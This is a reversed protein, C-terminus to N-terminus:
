GANMAAVRDINAQIDAISYQPAAKQLEEATYAGSFLNKDLLAQSKEVSGTSIHQQADASDLQDLITATIVSSEAVRVVVTETDGRAVWTNGRQAENLWVEKKGSGDVTVAIGLNNLYPTDVIPNQGPALYTVAPSSTGVVGGGVVAPGVIVPFVTPVPPVVPPTTGGGGGPPPVVSPWRVIPPPVPPPVVICPRLPGIKVIDERNVTVTNTTSNFVEPLNETEVWNDFSPMLTLMGEWNLVLYPNLNLIRTSKKQSILPKIIYPLSMFNGTKSCNSFDSTMTFDVIHSEKGARIQQGDYTVCFYKSMIDAIINPNKFNDVLFGTKYRSLGTVPDTVDMSVLDSELANLTSYYELNGVRNSLVNIDMMTFRRNAPVTKLIEAISNTYAPINLTQLLIEGTPVNPAVPIRKPTGSIAVIKGSKNITIIDIRPVFYKVSASIRTSPMLMDGSDSIIKRFDLVNKLSVPSNGNLYDPIMALYNLGLGSNKYSDVSFYDGGSSHEFYSYRVELNGAPIEGTISISANTYTYDRQGSNLRCRSTIDVGTASVVYVLDYADSKTLTINSSALIFDTKTVLSKTREQVGANIVNVFVDISSSIPGNVVSLTTGSTNLSFKSFEVIGVNSSAVLNSQELDDIHGRTVSISGDGSSNTLITLKKWTTYGIDVTDIDTRIESINDVPIPFIATNNPSVTVITKIDTVTSTSNSTRGTLTSGVPPMNATSTYRYAYLNGGAVDHNWVKASYAWSDVLESDSFKGKSEPIYLKQLVTMSGTLHKIHGVSRNIKNSGIMTTDYIYLAYIAKGADIDGRIYDIGLVRTEGIKKPLPFHVKGFATGATPTGVLDFTLTSNTCSIVTRLGNYESPVINEVILRMGVVYPPSAQTAFGLTAINTTVSASTININRPDSNHEWLEILEHASFNPLRKLNSVHIYQGYAPRFTVAPDIKEHSSTRGKDINLSTTYISEVEFGDIYAKGASVEAVFKGSDGNAFVGGNRGLNNHERVNIDFGDAIYDGSEDVTRRALNKELESYKSFRSHFQLVGNVVRMIEIYDSEVTTTLPLMVLELAIKLRDAGPAAYNYSGQAPDLLTNDSDSTEITQNIKLLISASAMNSYKSVVIFQNDVGVFYGNVYYVGKNVFALTGIGIASTAVANVTLTPDGVVNLTEADVFTNVGDVGGSTYTIYFTMPDSSTAPVIKRVIATVGSVVSILTKGAFLSTNIPAGQYTSDLKVYAANSDLYSNGPIVVSGQTFVHNGFRRVQEQLISQIQTLERAQVAYGPKFLIQHFGSDKNYDDHYPAISINTTM